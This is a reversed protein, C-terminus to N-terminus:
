EGNRSEILSIRKRLDIIESHLTVNRAECAEQEARLTEITERLREVENQLDEVIQSYGGFIMEVQQTNASRAQISASMKQGRLVLFSSVIGGGFALVSAILTVVPTSM